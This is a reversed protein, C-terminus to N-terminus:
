IAPEAPSCNGVKAHSRQLEPPRPHPAVTEVAAVGEVAAVADGAHAARLARERRVQDATRQLERTRDTILSAATIPDM